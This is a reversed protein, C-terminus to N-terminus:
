VHKAGFNMMAFKEQYRLIKRNGHSPIAFLRYVRGRRNAYKRRTEGLIALLGREKVITSFPAENGRRHLYLPVLQRRLREM